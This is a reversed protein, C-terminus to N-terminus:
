LAVAASLPMDVRSSFLATHYNPGFSFWTLIRKPSLAQSSYDVMSLLVLKSFIDPPIHLEVDRKKNNNAATDEKEVPNDSSELSWRGASWAGSRLQPSRSHAGCVHVFYAAIRGGRRALSFWERRAAVIRSSDSGNAYARGM